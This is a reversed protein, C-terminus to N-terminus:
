KKREAFVTKEGSRRIIWFCKKRVSIFDDSPIRVTGAAPPAVFVYLFPPDGGNKIKRLYCRVGRITIFVVIYLILFNKRIKPKKEM